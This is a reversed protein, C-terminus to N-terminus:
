YPIPERGLRSPRDSLMLRGMDKNALRGNTDATLAIRNSSEVQTEGPTHMLPTPNSRFRGVHPDGGHSACGVSVAAGAGLALLAARKLLNTRSSM